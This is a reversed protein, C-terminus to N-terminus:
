MTILDGTSLSPTGNRLSNRWQPCGRNKQCPAKTCPFDWDGALDFIALMKRKFVGFVYRM